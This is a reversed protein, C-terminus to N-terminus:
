EEDNEGLLEKMQDDLASWLGDRLAAFGTDFADQVAEYDLRDKPAADAYRERLEPDTALLIIIDEHEMELTRSEKLYHREEVQLTVSSEIRIIM